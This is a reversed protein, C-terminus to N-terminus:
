IIYEDVKDENWRLIAQEASDAYVTRGCGGNHVKCCVNWETRERNLPYVSDIRQDGSIDNGCSCLELYEM